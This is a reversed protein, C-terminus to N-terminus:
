IGGKIADVLAQISAYTSSNIPTSSPFGPMSSVHTEAQLATLTQSIQELLEAAPGGLGVKGGSIKLIGGNADEVTATDGGGDLEMKVGASTEGTINDSAGNVIVQAGGATLINAVDNKGDVLTSLGGNTSIRMSDNIGDVEVVMGSRFKITMKETSGELKHSIGDNDVTHEIQKEKIVLKAENGSEAADFFPVRPDLTGGKRTLIFEGKNNILQLIGNYEQILRPSESRKAGTNDADLPQNGCGLIVPSQRNGDIFGVYVFDGDQKQIAKENPPSSAKRLVRESYNTAGGLFNALKVKCFIQGEYHGNLAIVDYLVQPNQADKTQNSDDDTYHVDTVMAAFIKNRKVKYYALDKASPTNSSQVSLDTRYKGM